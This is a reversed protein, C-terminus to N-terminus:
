QLCLTEKQMSLTTKKAPPVSDFMDEWVFFLFYPGQLSLPEPNQYVELRIKSCIILITVSLSVSNYSTLPM